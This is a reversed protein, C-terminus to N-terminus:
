ICKKLFIFLKIISKSKDKLFNRTSANFYKQFLFQTFVFVSYIHNVSAPDIQMIAFWVTEIELFLIHIKLQYGQQEFNELKEFRPQLTYGQLTRGILKKM